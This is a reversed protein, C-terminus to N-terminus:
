RGKSRRSSSAPKKPKAATTKRGRGEKPGLEVGKLVALAEELSLAGAEKAVKAPFARAFPVLVMRHAGDDTHEQRAIVSLTRELELRLKGTAEVLGEDEVRKLLEAADASLTGWLTRERQARLLAPWLRRHVYVQKGDPNKIPMVDPSDAVVNLANFILKGKPHSWWSGKITEGALHSVLDAQTIAGRQEVLELGTM